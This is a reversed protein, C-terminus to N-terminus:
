SAAAEHHPRTAALRQELDILATATAEDAHEDGYRVADFADSARVLGDRESHFPSALSAAIEHATAGPLDDLIHREVAGAAIARFADLVAQSYDGAGQAARARRRYEAASVGSEDFVGGSASTKLRRAPQLQVLGWIVLGLVAAIALGILAYWWISIPGGSARDFLSLFWDVIAGVIRRLLSQQQPAYQDKSLEDALM